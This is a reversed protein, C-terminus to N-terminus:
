VGGPRHYRAALGEGEAGVDSEFVLNKQRDFVLSFFLLLYFAYCKTPAFRKNLMRKIEVRLRLFVLSFLCCTSAM